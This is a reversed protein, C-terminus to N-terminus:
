FNDFSLRQVAAHKLKFRNVRFVNIRLPNTYSFISPIIFEHGAKATAYDISETPVADIQASLLHCSSLSISPREFAVAKMNLRRTAPTIALGSEVPAIKPPKEGTPCSVKLCRAIVRPVLVRHVEPKEFPLLRHILEKM